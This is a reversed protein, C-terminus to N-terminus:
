PFRVQTAVDDRRITDVFRIVRDRLSMFLTSTRCGGGFFRVGRLLQVDTVGSAAFVYPQFIRLDEWQAVPVRERRLEEARLLARDVAEVHVVCKKLREALEPSQAHAVATAVALVFLANRM